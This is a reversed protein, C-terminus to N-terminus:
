KAPPEQTKKTEENDTRGLELGDLRDKWPDIYFLAMAMGPKWMDRLGASTIASKVAFSIHPNKKRFECGVASFEMEGACTRMCFIQCCERYMSTSGPAHRSKEFVIDVYKAIKWWGKFEARWGRVSRHDTQPGAM